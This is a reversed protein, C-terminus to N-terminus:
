RHLWKRFLNLMFPMVFYTMCGSILLASIIGKVFTIPLAQTYTRVLWPIVVTLPYVALFTVAWQKWKKAKEMKSFWFTDWDHVTEERESMWLNNSKDHMEARFDSKVWRQLNERNNFRLLIYHFDNDGVPPIHVTNLYGEFSSITREMEFKWEEFLYQKEPDVKYRVVLVGEM